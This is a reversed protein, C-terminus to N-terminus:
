RARMRLLMVALVALDATAIASTGGLFMWGFRMAIAVVVIATVAVSALAPGVHGRLLPAIAWSALAGAILLGAGVALLAGFDGPNKLTGRWHGILVGVQHAVGNGVLWLALLGHTVLVFRPVLATAM